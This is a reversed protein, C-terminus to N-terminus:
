PAALAAEALARTLAPTGPSMTNDLVIVVAGAEPIRWFGVTFGNITGGHQVVRVTRGGLTQPGVFVGFGYSGLPTGTAVQESMMLSQTEPRSFVREAALLQAWRLLDDASSMLMGASYVTSPDIYPANVLVSDDRMYGRAREPVLRLGDDFETAWLDLPELLLERIAQPYPKGTVREIIAGLLVYHSNAYAWRAGPEHLLPLSDFLAVLQAPTHAVTAEREYFGPLRPYDPIGATHSLLHRLTLREGQPRPYDPLYAIVPDDLRLKEQEVLRLVLAATFQKTASAIRFRGTPTNPVLHERDAYGFARRYLLSDRATVLVVGSLEGREAAARAISDIRAGRRDQASAPMVAILWLAAALRHRHRSM